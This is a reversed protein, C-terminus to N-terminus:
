DTTMIEIIYFCLDKEIYFFKSVLRSVLVYLRRTTIGVWWWELDNFGTWWLIYWEAFLKYVIDARTSLKLKHTGKDNNSVVHSSLRIWLMQNVFTKVFFLFYNCCLVWKQILQICKEKKNLLLFGRDDMFFGYIILRITILDLFFKTYHFSKAKHLKGVLKLWHYIYFM